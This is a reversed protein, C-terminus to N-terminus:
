QKRKSNTYQDVFVAGIIIVGQIVEQFYSSINMLDLGNKLLGIILAGVVTGGITGLGGSLSTGGIVVAAIANLEYGTGAIVTAAMVRSSLVIGAIGCLVGLLVYVSITIRDTNIGSARASLKNGGIAYVYRGFRTNNLVFAFFAVVVALIIIPVPIGFVVGGGIKGFDKTFNLVATGRNYLLTLGRCITMMGMTVIFAPVNGKAVIVGNLFGVFGGIVVAILIPVILPYTDPHAFDCAIISALALIAGVSLDIGGTIIVFAMGVAIIGNISIQRLMNLINIRTLFVDSMVTMVIFMLIFIVFMRYKKLFDVVGRKETM